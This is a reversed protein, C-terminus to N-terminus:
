FAHLKRLTAAEYGIEEVLERKATSEPSENPELTGAPIEILTDNVAIRYNKILCVHNADIMPIIAVAGPHRVIQRKKTTGDSLTQEVEEVRFRKTVLLNKGESMCGRMVVNGCKQGRTLIGVIRFVAM